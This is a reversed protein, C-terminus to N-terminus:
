KAYAIKIGVVVCTNGSTPVLMVPGSGDSMLPMGALTGIVKGTKSLAARWTECNAPSPLVQVSVGDCKGNSHPSAFVGVMGNPMAPNSAFKQGTLAAVIRGDPADPSWSSLTAYEPAPQDKGAPMLSGSMAEVVPACGKVGAAALEKAFHYDAVPVPAAAATPAPAAAAQSAGMSASPSMVIFTGAAAALGLVGVALAGFMAARRSGSGSMIPKLM